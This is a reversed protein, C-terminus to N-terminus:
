RRKTRKVGKPQQDAYRVEPTVVREFRKAMWRKAQAFPEADATTPMMALPAGLLAAALLARVSRTTGPRDVRVRM